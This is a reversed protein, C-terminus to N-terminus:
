LSVKESKLKDELKRIQKEIESKSLIVEESENQIQKKPNMIGASQKEPMNKNSLKDAEPDDSPKRGTIQRWENSTYIANRSFVDAINAIESAPMLRFIDRLGMISHGQTRATKTLFKRIFEDIITTVIPEISRDYYNRLVQESAKGTFIDESMGLQNYFMTHLYQAKTLLNNEVPRNLQTIKETSDSYAIGYKNTELQRRVNAMREEAQKQRLESKVSYPLQIILDLKGSNNKEDTIDLLNLTRILRKLTSNPENMIAYLPNEIIACINKPILLREKSGRRDDYAEVRVHNPYWEIIKATRLSLIKYSGRIKPDIDTEVPVVAVAGEDFMSMVVDQIFTRGTQDKNAEITLCQHLSDSVTKLYRGNQDVLVHNFDFSAVDIAIRNTITSIISRENAMSMRPRSPNYTSVYGLDKEMYAQNETEDRARFANWASKFRDGVSNM